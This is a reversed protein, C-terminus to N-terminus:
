SPEGAGAGRAWRAATANFAAKDTTFQRAIDSELAHEPNPNRLLEICSLLVDLLKTSPKWDSGIGVAEPCVMGSNMQVSPHYPANTFVVEPPKFPYEEPITLRVRFACGEYPTGPPGSIEALWQRLDDDDENLLRLGPVETGKAGRREAALRKLASM